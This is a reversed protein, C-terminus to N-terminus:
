PKDLPLTPEGGETGGGGSGGVAKSSPRSLGQLWGGRRGGLNGVQPWFLQGSM